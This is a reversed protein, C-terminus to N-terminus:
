RYCSSSIEVDGCLISMYIYIYIYIYIVSKSCLQLLRFIAEIPRFMYNNVQQYIGVDLMCNYNHKRVSNVERNFSLVIIKLLIHKISLTNSTVVNCLQTSEPKESRRLYSGDQKPSKMCRLHYNRVSIEPYCIQGM